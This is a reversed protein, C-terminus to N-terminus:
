PTSGQPPIPKASPDTAGDILSLKMLENLGLQYAEIVKANSKLIEKRLYFAELQIAKSREVMSERGPRARLRSALSDAMRSVSRAYRELNGAEFAFQEVTPAAQLREIRAELEAIEPDKKKEDM